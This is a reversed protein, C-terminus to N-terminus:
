SFETLKCWCQIIGSKMEGATSLMAVYAGEPKMSCASLMCIMMCSGLTLHTIGANMQSCPVAYQQKMAYSRSPEFIYSLKLVTVYKPTLTTKKGKTKFYLSSFISTKRTKNTIDQTQRCQSGDGINFPPLSNLMKYLCGKRRGALEACWRRCCQPGLQLSPGPTVTRM